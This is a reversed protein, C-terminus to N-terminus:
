TKHLVVKNRGSEKADYLCADACSLAEDSNLQQNFHCMGFSCTIHIPNELGIDFDHAEIIMRTRNMVDKALFADADPLCFIFEEGGHRAVTYYERLSSTFLQAIDILVKDGADHGYTDNV